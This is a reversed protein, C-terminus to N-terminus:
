GAAAHIARPGGGRTDAGMHLGVRSHLQCRQRARSSPAIKGVFQPRRRGARTREVVRQRRRASQEAPQWGASTESEVGALPAASLQANPQCTSTRTGSRHIRLSRGDQGRFLNRAGPKFRVWLGLAPPRRPRSTDSRRRPEPQEREVGCDTPRKRGGRRSDSAARRGADRQSTCGLLRQAVSAAARGQGPHLDVRWVATAETTGDTREM